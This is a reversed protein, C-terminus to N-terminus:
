QASWSLTLTIILGSIGISGNWAVKDLTAQELRSAFATAAAAGVFKGGGGAFMSTLTYTTNTKINRNETEDPPEKNKQRPYKRNMSRVM